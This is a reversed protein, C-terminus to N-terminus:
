AIDGGSDPKVSLKEQLAQAAPKVNAISLTHEKLLPHESPKLRTADGLSTSLAACRNHRLIAWPVDIDVNAKNILATRYHLPMGELAMAQVGRLSKGDFYAQLIEQETPNLETQDVDAEDCALPMNLWMEYFFANWITEFPDVTIDAKTWRNVWRPLSQNKEPGYRFKELDVDIAISVMCRALDQLEKRTNPDDVTGFSRPMDTFDRMLSVTAVMSPFHLEFSDRNSDDTHVRPEPRKFTSKRGHGFSPSIGDLVVKGHSLIDLFVKYASAPSDQLFYYQAQLTHISFHDDTLQNLLSHPLNPHQKAMSEKFVSIMPELTSTVLNETLAGNGKLVSAPHARMLYLCNVDWESKALETTKIEVMSGTLPTQFSYRGSRRRNSGRVTEKPLKQHNASHLAHFATADPQSQYINGKPM